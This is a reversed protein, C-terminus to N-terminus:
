GTRGASAATRVFLDFDDFEGPDISSKPIFVFRSTNRLFLFYFIKDSKLSTIKDNYIDAGSDLTVDGYRSILVRVNKEFHDQAGRRSVLRRVFANISFYVVLTIIVDLLWRSAPVLPTAIWTAMAAVSAAFFLLLVQVVLYAAFGTVYGLRGWGSLLPARRKADRNLESDVDFRVEWWVKEPDPPLSEFGM